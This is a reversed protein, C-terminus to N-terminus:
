SPPLSSDDGRRPRKARRWVVAACVLALVWAPNAAARRPALQGCGYDVQPLGNAKLETTMAANTAMDLNPDSDNAFDMKIDDYLPENAQKLAALAALVENPDDGTVANQADSLGYEVLLSGFSTLPFAGTTGDHCLNCAAGENTSSLLSPPPQLDFAIAVEPPYGPHAEAPVAWSVCVGAVVLGVLKGLASRLLTSHPDM